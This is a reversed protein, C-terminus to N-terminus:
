QMVYDTFYVEEVVPNGTEEQLIEQVGERIAKRLAKRGIDTHLAQYDQTSILMVIRNKLLPEHQEIYAVDSPQSVRLSLGLQMYRQRGRAMFNVVFKPDMPYYSATAIEGTDEAMAIDVENGSDIEETSNEDFVGLYSLTAFSTGGLLLLTIFIILGIQVVPKALLEKFKGGKPPSTQEANNDDEAM